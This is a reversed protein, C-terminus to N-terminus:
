FVVLCYMLHSSLRRALRGNQCVVARSDGCNAFILHRPTVLVSTCTSGSRDRLVEFNSQM